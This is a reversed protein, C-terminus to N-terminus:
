PEVCKDLFTALVDRLAPALVVLERKTVHFSALKSQEVDGRFALAALHLPLLDITNELIGDVTAADVVDIIESYQSGVDLVEEIVAGHLSM